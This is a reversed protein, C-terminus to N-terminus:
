KKSVRGGVRAVHELAAVLLAVVGEGFGARPGDNVARWVIWIGTDVLQFWLVAALGGIEEADAVVFDQLEVAFAAADVGLQIERQFFCSAPRGWDRRGAAELCFVAVQQDKRGANIQRLYGM